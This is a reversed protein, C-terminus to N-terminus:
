VAGPFMRSLTAAVNVIAFALFAIAAVGLIVGAVIRAIV